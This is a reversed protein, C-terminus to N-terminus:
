TSVVVLFGVFACVNLTELHNEFGQVPVFTLDICNKM